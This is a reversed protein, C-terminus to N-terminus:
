SFILKKNKNDLWKNLDPSPIVTPNTRMDDALERLEGVTHEVYYKNTTEDYAGGPIRLQDFKFKKALGMDKRYEAPKDGRMVYVIQYRHFGKNNPSQLNMEFLGLCPEDESIYHTGYLINAM